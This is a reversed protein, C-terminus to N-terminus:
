KFIKRYLYRVAYYLGAIELLKLVRVYLKLKTYWLFQIIKITYKKITSENLLSEMLILDNKDKFENREVKMRLLQKFSIFKVGDYYFHHRDDYVLTDVSEKHFEIMDNHSSIEDSKIISNIRYPSIYDIDQAERYGYVSLVMGGDIVIDNLSLKNEFCWNKIRDIKGATRKYHNPYAHNIFHVSNENLLFRAINIAENKTDNIHVSHKGNGFLSRIEQKIRQVEDLDNSQFVFLRLPQNKKYCPILKGKVGPYNEERDGLWLEGQYVESILNHLGNLSLYIQKYYVINKFINFLEKEFGCASPWVLAVFTNDSTEIFKRACLDHNAKSFARQWFFNYDYCDVTSNLRVCKVSLGLHIACAVRHAGNLINGNRDLPIISQNLDFGNIKMNGYTALFSSLFSNSDIKINSKPEKFSGLTFAKIHSLYLDDFIGGRNKIGELFLLKAAVDFRCSSLLKKADVTEIDYSDHSIFEHLVPEIKSLLDTRLIKEM